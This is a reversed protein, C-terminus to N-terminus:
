KNCWASENKESFSEPKTCIEVITERSNPSLTNSLLASTRTHQTIQIILLGFVLALLPLHPLLKNM